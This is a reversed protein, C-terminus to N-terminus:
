KTAPAPKGQTKQSKEMEAKMKAAYDTNDMKVPEVPKDTGEYGEGCGSAAVLALAVVCGSLIRAM